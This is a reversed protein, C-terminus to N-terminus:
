RIYLYIDEIQRVPKWNPFMWHHSVIYADEKLEKQLKQELKDMVTHFQFTFVKNFQSLDQKWFDAQYVIATKSLNEAVIKEISEQVLWDHLEYGYAVAGRKAMEIVIRGDGSGLDVARDKPKIDLLQFIIEMEKKGSPEYHAGLLLDHMKDM